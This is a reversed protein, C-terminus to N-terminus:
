WHWCRWALLLAKPLLNQILLAPLSPLLLFKWKMPVGRRLRYSRCLIRTEHLHRVTECSMLKALVKIRARSDKQPHQLIMELIAGSEVTSWSRPGEKITVTDLQRAQQPGCLVEGRSSLAVTIEHAIPMAATMKALIARFRRM